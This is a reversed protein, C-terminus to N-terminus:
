TYRLVEDVTTYGDLISQIGHERMTRMGLERAKERLILTPARTNILERLPNSIRLYEVVAKRGKYGTGNCFQCGQPRFISIPEEIGLIEMEKAWDAKADTIENAYETKYAKESLIKDDFTTIKTILTPEYYIGGNIMASYAAIIHMPTVSIGYGYGITAIKSDTKEWSDASPVLPKATEVIEMKLREMVGAIEPASLDNHALKLELM